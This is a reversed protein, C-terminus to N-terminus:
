SLSTGDLKMKKLIEDTDGSFLKDLFDEIRTKKAPDSSEKTTDATANATANVEEVAPEEEPISYEIVAEGTLGLKGEIITGRSAEGVSESEIGDISVIEMGEPLNITIDTKPEGQFWLVSGSEDLPIKFDYSVEYKSIIDSEEDAIGLLESSMDTEVGLLVVNESSNDIRVDMNDEISKRFAKSMSVDAKLLEWASVFGDENGFEMDVYKKFIVSRNGSYTETYDWTMGDKELTISNDWGYAAGAPVVLVSLLVILALFSGVKLLIEEQVNSPQLRADTM